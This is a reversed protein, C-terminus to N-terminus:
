EYIIVKKKNHELLFSNIDDKVIEADVNYKCSINNIIEILSTKEKLERIVYIGVDDSINYIESNNEIESSIFLIENILM